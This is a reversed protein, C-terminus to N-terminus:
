AKEREIQGESMKKGTRVFQCCPNRSRRLKSPSKYYDIPGLQM